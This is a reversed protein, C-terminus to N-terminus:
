PLTALSNVVRVLWENDWTPDFTSTLKVNVVDMGNKTGLSEWNTYVGCIDLALRKAHGTVIQSGPISLRIFRKTGAYYAEFEANATENFQFTMDLEVSRPGESHDTFWLEGDLFDQPEYGTDLKWTFETLTKSKQTTGITAGSDNIFVIGRKAVVDEVTPVVLGTEFDAKAFNQGFMNCALQVAENAGGKIELTKALVYKTIFAQVNNGYRLTFSNPNNASTLSPVFAWEYAHVSGPDSDLQTPVINGRISMLLYYLCQEFSFTGQRSIEAITNTKLYRTYKSLHGTAEEPLTVTPNDKHTFNGLLVATAEAEVGYGSEKGIQAKRFASSSVVM